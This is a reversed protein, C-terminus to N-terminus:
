DGVGKVPHIEPQDFSQDIRLFRGLLIKSGTIALWHKSDGTAPDEKRLIIRGMTNHYYEGSVLAATHCLDAVDTRRRGSLLLRRRAVSAVGNM